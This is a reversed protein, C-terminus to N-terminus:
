SAQARRRRPKAAPVEPAPAPATEPEPAAEATLEALPQGTAKDVFVLESAVLDIEYHKQGAHEYTRPELRGHVEVLTGKQVRALAIEAQRGWCTVTFWHAREVPQGDPTRWRESACLSFKALTRGSGVTRAEADRGVFGRLTFTNTRAM